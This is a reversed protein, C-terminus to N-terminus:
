VAGILIDCPDVKDQGMYWFAKLAMALASSSKVCEDRELPLKVLCRRRAPECRMAPVVRQVAIRKGAGDRNEVRAVRDGGLAHLPGLARPPTFLPPAGEKCPYKHNTKREVYYSPPTIHAASVHTSANANCTVKSRIM